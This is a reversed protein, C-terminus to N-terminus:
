TRELAAPAAPESPEVTLRPLMRGLWAPLWWTARGLLALTAPLLAMRIVLADLFIASALGLGFLQLLHDGSLAFSAFVTIMIAAAATIVRATSALGDRIAAAPDGGRAWEERIRSVPFVEYDMSLGFVIAFIIVPMFPEIVSQQVNLPGALWGREFVAQLIGLAAGISLLNM